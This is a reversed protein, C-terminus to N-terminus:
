STFSFQNLLHICMCDLKAERSNIDNEVTNAKVPRFRALTGVFQRFNISATLM